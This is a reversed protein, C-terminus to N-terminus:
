LWRSLPKKLSQTLVLAVAIKILDPIIYPIVCWSLVMGIGIPGTKSTYLIYFWVSGFAYCVAIGLIMAIATIYIKEKFIVQFLWMTLATFIFGIIYGGTNGLLVSPGSRFQAFVPVGALGLLIYVIVSILGRKGGLLACVLVVAMTQLTFPIETPIAIWSCVAILVTGLACYVMDHIKNSTKSMKNGAKQRDKGRGSIMTILFSCM